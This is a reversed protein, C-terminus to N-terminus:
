VTGNGGGLGTGYEEVQAQPGCPPTPSALFWSRATSDTKLFDLLLNAVKVRGSLSPHTGDSALDACDWVLGDSRPVLGDAWLYPGWAIWPSVVPGSAPDFNLAAAGNLQDEILGKVAFASEYAWPEPNLPTSAYGAYIRSSAYCLRGNPYRARLIGMIAAFQSELVVAHDPFPLSPAANAEKFWFAQVQAPSVGAMSLRQDVVTWFAASPNSIIAATQGGQAGNVLVVAPNKAPDANAIPLLATFEASTNSMGISVLVIKGNPDPAGALNRPVVQAAEALGAADHALPRMNAGGPYLGGAFGQYTQPGMDPIPVEGISVNACNAQASAGAALFPLGLPILLARM